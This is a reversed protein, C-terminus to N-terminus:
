LIRTKWFSTLITRSFQRLLKQINQNVWKWKIYSWSQVIFLCLVFRSSRQKLKQCVRSRGWLAKLTLWTWHCSSGEDIVGFTPPLMWAPSSPKLCCPNGHLRGSVKGKNFVYQAQETTSWVVSLDQYKLHM